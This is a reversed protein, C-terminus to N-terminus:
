LMCVVWSVRSIRFLFIMRRSHSCYYFSNVSVLCMSGTSFASIKPYPQTVFLAASPGALHMEPPPWFTTYQLPPLAKLSRRPPSQQRVRCTRNGSCRQRQAVGRLLVHRWWHKVMELWCLCPALLCM